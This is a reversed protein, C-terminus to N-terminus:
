SSGNRSPCVFASMTAHKVPAVLRTSSMPPLLSLDGVRKVIKSLVELSLPLSSSMAPKLTSSTDYLPEPFNSSKADRPWLTLNFHAICRLLYLRVTKSLLELPLPLSSSMAPKLTSSTDHLPESFNSSKADRPWLRLTFHAICRVIYRMMTKSLLGLPLPLSSNMARKLTSSTEHLLESFNSSKADIPWLSLTFHAICHVIYHMMTKSLLRLPLSLSSSMARKLTSSTEHLFESFNSSKADKPRLSLTFHVICHVIYLMMTKSLLRLSLPLSSSIAPKLTPSTEDLLEFFNSSKADVPRLSLTFHM